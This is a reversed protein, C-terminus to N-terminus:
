NVTIRTSCLVRWPEVINRVEVTYPGSSLGLIKGAVTYDCECRCPQSVHETEIVCLLNGSCKLAISVSDLCCNLTVGMHTFSIRGQGAVISLRDRAGKQPNWLDALGTSGPVRETNPECPGLGSLWIEPEVPGSFIASERDQSCGLAVLGAFLVSLVLGKM